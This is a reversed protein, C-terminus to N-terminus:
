NIGAKCSSGTHRYGLEVAFAIRMAMHRKQSSWRARRRRHASAVSREQNVLFPGDSNPVDKIKQWDTQDVGPAPFRTVLRFLPCGGLDEIGCADHCRGLAEDSETGCLAPQGM